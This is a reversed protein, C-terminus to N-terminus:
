PSRRPGGQDKTFHASAVAAKWVKFAVSEAHDFRQQDTMADVGVTCTKALTKVIEVVQGTREEHILDDDVPGLVMAHAFAVGLRHFGDTVMAVPDIRVNQGSADVRANRDRAWALIGGGIMRLAAVAMPKTHWDDLYTGIWFGLHMIGDRTLAEVRHQLSMEIAFLGERRVGKSQAVAKRLVRANLVILKAQMVLHVLGHILAARSLDPEFEIRNGGTPHMGLLQQKSADDVRDDQLVRDVKQGLQKGLGTWTEVDRVLARVGEAVAAVGLTTAVSTTM